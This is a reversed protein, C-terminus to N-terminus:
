PNLHFVLQYKEQINEMEHSDIEGGSKLIMLQSYEKLEEPDMQFSQKLESFKSSIRDLLPEPLAPLTPSNLDISPSSSPRHIEGNRDVESNVM